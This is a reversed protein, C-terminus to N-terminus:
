LLEGEKQIVSAHLVDFTQKLLKKDPCVQTLESSTIRENVLKYEYTQTCSSKIKFVRDEAKYYEILLHNKNERRDTLNDLDDYNYLKVQDKSGQHVKILQFGTYRYQTSGMKEILDLLPHWKLEAILSKKHYISQILGRANYNFTYNNPGLQIELPRGKLDFRAKQKNQNIREYYGFSAKVIDNSNFTSVYHSAKADLKYRIPHPYGCDKIQLEGKSIFQIRLDLASCWGQGFVGRFLSRSRYTRQVNWTFGSKSQHIESDHLILSGNKMNVAVSANSNQHFIFGLLLITKFNQM